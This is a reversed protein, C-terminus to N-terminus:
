SPWRRSRSTAEQFSANIAHTAVSGMILTYGDPPANTVANCAIIGNAGPKSDVILTKKWVREIEGQLTRALLDPAGGATYPLIMKIHKSPFSAADEAAFALRAQGDLSLGTIAASGVLFNRRSVMM